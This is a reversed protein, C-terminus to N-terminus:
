TGSEAERSSKRPAQRGTSDLGPVCGGGATVQAGFCSDFRMSTRHDARLDQKSANFKAHITNRRAEAEQEDEFIQITANDDLCEVLVQDGRRYEHPLLPRVRVVAQVNSASM